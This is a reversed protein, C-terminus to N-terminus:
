YGYGIEVVSLFCLMEPPKLVIVPTIVVAGFFQSCPDAYLRSVTGKATLQIFRASLLGSLEVVFGHWLGGLSGPRLM